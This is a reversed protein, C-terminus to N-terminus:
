VGGNYNRKQFFYWISVTFLICVFILATVTSLPIKKPKENQPPPSNRKLERSDPKEVRILRGDPGRIQGHKKDLAEQRGALHKYADMPDYIIGNPPDLSLSAMGEPLPLNNLEGWKDDRGQERKRVNKWGLTTSVKWPYLPNIASTIEVGFSPYHNPPGGGQFAMGERGKKKNVEFWSNLDGPSIAYAKFFNHTIKHAVETPMGQGHFYIFDIQNDNNVNMTCLEVRQSIERGGPLRLRIAKAHIVYYGKDGPFDRIFVGTNRVIQFDHSKSFDLFISANEASIQSASQFLLACILVIYKLKLNKM